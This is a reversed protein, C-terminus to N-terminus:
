TLALTPGAIGLRYPHSADTGGPPRGPQLRARLELRIPCLAVDVRKLPLRTRPMDFAQQM